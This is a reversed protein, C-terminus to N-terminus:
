APQGFIHTQASARRKLRFSLIILSAGFIFAYAALWWTLVLLGAAPLALLLAGWIASVAGGIWLWVRGHDRSLRFASAFMLGGSIIAWTAALVVFAFMAAFPLLVAAAAVMLNVVGALIMLVWREHRRAARVASIITCVGDAFAYAAFVLVLSLLTVGPAFLAVLGFVIAFLGRLLVAWWNRALLASM